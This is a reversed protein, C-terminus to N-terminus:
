PRICRPQAMKRDTSLLPTKLEIENEHKLQHIIALADMAINVSPYKLVIFSHGWNTRPM